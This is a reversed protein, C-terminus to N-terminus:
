GIGLGKFTDDILRSVEPFSLSSLLPLPVYPLRPNVNALQEAIKRLEANQLRLNELRTPQQLRIQDLRHQSAQLAEIGPRYSSRDWESPPIQYASVGRKNVLLEKMVAAAQLPSMVSGVSEDIRQIQMLKPLFLSLQMRLLRVQLQSTLSSARGDFKAALANFADALSQEPIGPNRGYRYDIEARSLKTKIINEIAPSMPPFFTNDHALVLDILPRISDPDAPDASETLMEIIEQKSGLATQVQDPQRRWLSIPWVAGPRALVAASVGALGSLFTRRTPM